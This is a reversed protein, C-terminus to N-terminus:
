WHILPTKAISRLFCNRGWSRPPLAAPSVPSGWEIPACLERMHTLELAKIQLKNHTPTKSAHIFLGVKMDEHGFIGLFPTQNGPVSTVCPHNPAEMHTSPVSNVGRYSCSISKCLSGDGWHPNLKQIPLQAAGPNRLELTNQLSGQPRKPLLTEASNTM